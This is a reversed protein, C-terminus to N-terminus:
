VTSGNALESVMITNKDTPIFEPLIRKLKEGCIDHDLEYLYRMELMEFAVKWFPSLLYLIFWPFRKAKV